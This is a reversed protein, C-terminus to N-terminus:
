HKKSFEDLFKKQNDDLYELGKESIITLLEDIDYKETTNTSNSISSKSSSKSKESIYDDVKLVHDNIFHSTLDWKNNDAFSKSAIICKDLSADVDVIIHSKKANMCSRFILAIRKTIEDEPLSKFDVCQRFDQQLKSFGEETYEIPIIIFKM